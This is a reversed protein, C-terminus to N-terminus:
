QHLIGSDAGPRDIVIVDMERALAPLVKEELGGASGSDKTVMVHINLHDYLAGNLDPSFPGQMAIIHSPHIGALECLELATRTPLVRVWLREAPIVSTYTTLTQSGTTLLINGGTEALLRAAHEASEAHRVLTSWSGSVSPRLIREYPIGLETCCARINDTAKVAYPHTADIVRGPRLTRMFELMENRALRGIHCNTGTPLLSAGYETAVCVLADKEKEAALRGESTGGFILTVAM